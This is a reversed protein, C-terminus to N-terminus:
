GMDYEVKVQALAADAAEQVGETQWTLGRGLTSHWSIVTESAGLDRRGAITVGRTGDVPVFKKAVISASVRERFVEPLLGPETLVVRGRGGAYLTWSLTHTEVNWGGHEIEHWGVHTWAEVDGHSLVALSAICVDEQASAWALIRPRGYTGLSALYADYVGRDLGRTRSWWRSSGAPKKQTRM